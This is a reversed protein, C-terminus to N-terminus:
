GCCPDGTRIRDLDVPHDFRILIRRVVSDKDCTDGSTSPEVLIKGDGLNQVRVRWVLACGSGTWRIAVERDSNGRAVDLAVLPDPGARKWSLAGLGATTAVSAIQRDYDFVRVEKTRPDLDHLDLTTALDPEQDPSPTIWTREGGDAIFAREVALRQRGDMESEILRRVVWVPPGSTFERMTEAARPDLAAFDAADVVTAWTAVATTGALTDVRALVAAPDETATTSM